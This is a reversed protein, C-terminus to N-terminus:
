LDNLEAVTSRGGHEPAVGTPHTWAVMDPLDGDLLGDVMHDGADSVDTTDLYTEVADALSYRDYGALRSAVRHGDRLLDRRYQHFQDMTRYDLQDVHRSFSDIYSCVADVAAGYRDSVADDDAGSGLVDGFEV